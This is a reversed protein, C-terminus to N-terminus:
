VEVQLEKLVPNISPMLQTYAQQYTLGTIESIRIITIPLDKDKLKLAEPIIKSLAEHLTLGPIIERKWDEPIPNEQLWYLSIKNYFAAFDESNEKIRNIYEVKSPHQKLLDKVDGILCWLLDSPVQIPFYKYFDGYKSNGLERFFKECCAYISIEDKTLEIKKETQEQQASKLRALDQEILKQVYNSFNAQTEIHLVLDPKNDISITKIIKGIKTALYNV